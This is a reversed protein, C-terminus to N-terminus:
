NVKAFPIGLMHWLFIFLMMYVEKDRSDATKPGTNSCMFVSKARGYLDFVM